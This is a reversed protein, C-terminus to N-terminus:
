EDHLGGPLHDKCDCPFRTFGDPDKESQAGCIPCCPENRKKPTPM